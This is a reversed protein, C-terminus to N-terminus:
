DAFAAVDLVGRPLSGMLRCRASVLAFARTPSPTIVGLPARRFYSRDTARLMMDPQRGRGAWM